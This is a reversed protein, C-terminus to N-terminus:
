WSDGAISLCPRPNAYNYQDMLKDYRADGKNTKEGMKADDETTRATSSPLAPM